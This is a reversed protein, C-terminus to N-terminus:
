KFGGIAKKMRQLYAVKMRISQLELKEVNIQYEIDLKTVAILQRKDLKDGINLWPVPDGIRPPFKPFVPDWWRRGFDPGPDVPRPQHGRAASGPSYSVHADDPLKMQKASM